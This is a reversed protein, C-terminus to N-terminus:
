QVMAGGSRAAQKVLQCRRFMTAFGDFNSVGNIRAAEDDIIAFDIRRFARSYRECAERMLRAIALPPNGFAGCGFASLVLSDHGHAAAVSFIAEIKRRTGEEEAEALRSGRTAPQAYAACSITAIRVPESLFSYGDVVGRRFYLSHPTHTCSFEPLPYYKPDILAHLNSRRFLDEEQASAGTKWGGGPSAQNAMNLLAPNLGEDVLSIAAEVCDVSIVRVVVESDHPRTQVSSHIGSAEHLTSTAGVDDPCPPLAVTRGSTVYAGDACIQVTSRAVSALLKGRRLRAIASSGEAESYDRLFAQVDFSDKM